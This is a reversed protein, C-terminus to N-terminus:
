SKVTGLFLIFWKSKSFNFNVGPICGLPMKKAYNSGDWCLDSGLTSFMRLSLLSALETRLIEEVKPESKHQSPELSLTIQYLIM